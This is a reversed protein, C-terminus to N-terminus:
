GLYRLQTNLSGVDLVRGDIRGALENAWVTAAPGAQLFVDDFGTTDLIRRQVDDSHEFADTRPIDIFKADRLGIRRMLGEQDRFSDGGLPQEPGVFLIRRGRFLQRFLDLVEEMAGNSYHELYLGLFFVTATGYTGVEAESEIIRWHRRYERHQRRRHLVMVDDPAHITVHGDPTKPYREYEVVHPWEPGITFDHNFCPVVLPNSRLLAENLKEQLRTSHRQFRLGRGYLAGKLEGDGFRALSSGADVLRRLTEIASLKKIGPRPGRILAQSYRFWYGFNL